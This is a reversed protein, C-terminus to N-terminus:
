KFYFLPFSAWLGDSECMFLRHQQLVTASIVLISSSCQVESWRARVELPHKLVYILRHRLIFFIVPSPSRKSKEGM